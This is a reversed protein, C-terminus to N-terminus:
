KLLEAFFKKHEIIRENESLKKFLMWKHLGKIHKEHEIILELEHIEFTGIDRLKKLNEEEDHLGTMVLGVTMSAIIKGWKEPEKNLAKALYKIDENLITLYENIKKFTDEIHNVWNEIKENHTDHLAKMHEETKHNNILKELIFTYESILEISKQAKIKDEDNDLSLPTHQLLIYLKDIFAFIHKM